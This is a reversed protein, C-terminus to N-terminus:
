AASKFEIQVTETAATTNQVTEGGGGTGSRSNDGGRRSPHHTEETEATERDADRCGEDRRSKRVRKTQEVTFAFLLENTQSCRGATEEQM